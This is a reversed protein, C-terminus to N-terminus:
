AKEAPQDATSAFFNQLEALDSRAYSLRAARAQQLGAKIADLLADLNDCLDVNIPQANDLEMPGVCFQISMGAAKYEGERVIKDIAQLQRDIQKIRSIHSNMTAGLDFVPLSAMIVIWQSHFASLQRRQWMDFAALFDM